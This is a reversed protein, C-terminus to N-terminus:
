RFALISTLFANSTYVAINSMNKGQKEARCESKCEFRYKPFESAYIVTRNRHLAGRHKLVRDQIKCPIYIVKIPHTSVTNLQLTRLQQFPRM